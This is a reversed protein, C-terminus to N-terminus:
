LKSILKYYFEVTKILKEIPIRENHGHIFSREEKSLAMPSFRFVKDSIRSYHRSDSCAMMLYPSVIADSWTENITQKILKYGYSETDSNPSPNSVETAYVEIRNDKIIKKVSDIVSDASEGGIIRINATVEARPPIVNSADSGKMMTFAMTTRVLANLEGGLKRTLKALLPKFLGINGFILKIAFVSERGLTDLMEANAGYLNMKFNHKELKVVAKSLIGVSTHAPPTSAHGGDTKVALHLDMIGKEATGILACPKKVGPFVNEVVAGGEDLVLAIEVNNDTFYKVIEPTSEGSTEEDGSFSFYVDREPVFGKAILSEAAELISTLTIKTDITGRGWIVGDEIIAEFPPKEWQTEDAFVVDYHAMLVTAGPKDTKGKWRFLLGRKGHRSLTTTKYVLPYLEELIKYFKAFEAEDELSVDKYSVTKCRILERFNSVIREKDTEVKIETVTNVEKPKFRAAKFVLFAFFLVIMVIIIMIIIAYEPM